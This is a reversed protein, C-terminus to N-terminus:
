HLLNLLLAVAKAFTYKIENKKYRTATKNHIIRLLVSSILSTKKINM